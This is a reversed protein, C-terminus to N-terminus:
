LTGRMKKILSTLGTSKAEQNIRELLYDLGANGQILFSNKDHEYIVAPVRTIGYKTFLSPKLRIPVQYRDCPTQTRSCDLEKKLIRGFYSQGKRARARAMGGVFGRMVLSLHPGGAKDLAAIYAHVTEDPISSSIFLYVKEGAALSGVSGKQKTARQRTKKKWPKTYDAFVEKELRQQECQVREQFEPSHFLSATEEAAKLGQEGYQNVPLNMKEADNRAKKMIRSVESEALDRAQCPQQFAPFIFVFVSVFFILQRLM